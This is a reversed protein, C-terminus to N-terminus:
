EDLPFQLSKPVINLSEDHLEGENRFTRLGLLMIVKKCIKDISQVTEWALQYRFSDPHFGDQARKKAPYLLTSKASETLEMNLFNYLKTGVRMPDDFDEYQLIKVRNPFLKMLKKASVIDKEMQNCLSKADGLITFKKPYYWNTNVRSNVIGRPDRFLQILKLKKHEQLLHKAHGAYMRLVKTVRHKSTPCRGVFKTYCPKMADPGCEPCSAASKRCRKCINHIRHVETCEAYRNPIPGPFICFHLKNIITRDFAEIIKTKFLVKVM